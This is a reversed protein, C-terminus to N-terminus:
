PQDVTRVKILIGRGMDAAYIVDGKRIRDKTVVFYSKGSSDVIEYISRRLLYLTPNIRMVSSHTYIAGATLLFGGYVLIDRIGPSAVNFFPLLYSSLYGAAESGAEHVEEVVFEHGSQGRPTLLWFFTVAFGIAGLSFCAWAASSPFFRIGLILFLPTYSSLFMLPRIPM